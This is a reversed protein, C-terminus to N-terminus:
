VRALFSALSDDAAGGAALTRPLVFDPLTFDCVAGSAGGLRWLTALTTEEPTALCLLADGAEGDHSWFFSPVPGSWRAARRLLDLWFCLAGGASRGLPVRIPPFSKAEAFGGWAAALDVIGQATGALWEFPRDLMSCLDSAATARAWGAYLELANAGSELPEETLRELGRDGAAPPASRVTSLVDVAVHWYSELVVPAIEPHTQVDKALTVPAAIALPYARGAQDQSPGVVGAVARSARDSDDLRMFFGYSPPERHGIAVTAALAIAADANRFLWDDLSRLESPLGSASLFENRWPVKGLASARTREDSM